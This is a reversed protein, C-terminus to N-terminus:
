DGSTDKEGVYEVRDLLSGLKHQLGAGVGPVDSLIGTWALPLGGYHDVIKAARQYGVGPFGEMVHIQWDRSERTGFINKATQKPRSLLSNHRDKMTWRSFWSMYEITETQSNTFGIWLGHLQLSWLTAQFQQQTFESQTKLCLFGDVTWRLRGEILIVGIDLCQLQPIERALRGDGMSALLDNIEKRQVGIRGLVPSFLLFDAGYREPVISSEGLSKFIEPEAPSVLM